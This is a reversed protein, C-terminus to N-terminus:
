YRCIIGGYELRKGALFALAPEVAGGGAGLDVQQQLPGILPQPRNLHLAAEARAQAAAEM